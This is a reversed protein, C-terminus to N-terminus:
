ASMPASASRPSSARSASRPRLTTRRSSVRRGFDVPMPPAALTFSTTSTGVSRPPTAPTTSNTTSSCLTGGSRGIPRSSARPASILMGSECTVKLTRPDLMGIALSGDPCRDMSITPLLCDFYWSPGSLTRGHGPTEGSSKTHSAADLYRTERYLSITLVVAARM